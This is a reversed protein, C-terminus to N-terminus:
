LSNLEEGVKLSMTVLNYYVLLLSNVAHKFGCQMM